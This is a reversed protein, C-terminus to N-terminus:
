QNDRKLFQMQIIGGARQTLWVGFRGLLPPKQRYPFVVIFQRVIGAEDYAINEAELIRKLTDQFTEKKTSKRAM